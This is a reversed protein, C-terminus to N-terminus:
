LSRIAELRHAPGVESSHMGIRPDDDLDYFCTAGRRVAAELVDGHDLVTITCRRRNPAVALKPASCGVPLQTEQVRRPFGLEFLAPLKRALQVFGDDADSRM